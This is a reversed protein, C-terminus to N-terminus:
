VPLGGEGSRTLSLPLFLLQAGLPRRLAPMPGPHSSSSPVSLLLGARARPLSGRCAVIKGDTRGSPLSSSKSSTQSNASRKSHLNVRCTITCIVQEVLSDGYKGIGLL